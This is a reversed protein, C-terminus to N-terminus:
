REFYIYLFRSSGANNIINLERPPTVDVDLTDTNSTFGM